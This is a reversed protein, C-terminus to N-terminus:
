GSPQKVARDRGRLPLIESTTKGSELGLDKTGEPSARRNCQNTMGFSRLASPDRRQNQTCDVGLDRADARSSLSLGTGEGGPINRSRMHRDDRVVSPIAFCGAPLLSRTKAESHRLGSIGRTREPHCVANARSSLKVSVAVKPFFPSVRGHSQGTGNKESGRANKQKKRDQGSGTRPSCGREVGLKEGLPCSLAEIEMRHTSRAPPVSCLAPRESLFRRGEIKGM